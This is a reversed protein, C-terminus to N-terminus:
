AARDALVSLSEDGAQDEPPPPVVTGLRELHALLEPTIQEPGWPQPAKGPVPDEGAESFIREPGGPNFFFIMRAPQISVNRFGHLTGRRVRLSDSRRLTVREGEPGLQFELEGDIIMYQEDSYPHVHPVPGGGPPITSDVMSTEGGTDETTLAMRYIDGSLWKTETDEARRVIWDSM